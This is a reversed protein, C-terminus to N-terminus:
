RLLGGIIGMVVSGLLSGLVTLIIFAPISALVWKIMFAVMSGFNMNIDVIKVRGIEGDGAQEEYAPNIDLM